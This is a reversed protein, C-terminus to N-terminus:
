PEDEEEEEDVVVSDLLSLAEDSSLFGKEVMTDAWGGFFAPDRRYMAVCAFALLDGYVDIAEEYTTVESLKSM